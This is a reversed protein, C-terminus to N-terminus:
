IVIFIEFCKWFYKIIINNDNNGDITANSRYIIYVDVVLCIMFTFYFLYFLIYNMIISKFSTHNFCCLLYCNCNGDMNQGMPYKTTNCPIFSGNTGCDGDNQQVCRLYYKIRQSIDQQWRLWAWEGLHCGFVVLM